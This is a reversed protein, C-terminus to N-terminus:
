WASRSVPGRSSRGCGRRHEQRCQLLLLVQWGQNRLCAGVCPHRGLQSGQASRSDRRRKALRAPRGFVLSSVFDVALGGLWRNHPLSLLPRRLFRHAPRCKSRCAGRRATGQGSRSRAQTLEELTVELISGHRQGDVVHCRDDIKAWEKWDTTERAGYRHDVYYDAYLLTKGDVAVIAPGEVRENEILPKDFLKYPGTPSDSEAACIRGWIGAPQDDTEKFVIRYKDGVKLMTTDINNFGPDFLMKPDSFEEFDETLVYYARHYGGKPNAVPSASPVDSSWVIMYQKNAELYYVEPAWCTRTDPEHEMLPLFRQESWTILDKSNAYGIGKDGWGSTWVMHFLGNPGREIHPDRLLKSGVTPKLRVDSIAFWQLADESYAM